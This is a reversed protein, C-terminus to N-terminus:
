KINLLGKFEGTGKLNEESEIVKVTNEHSNSVRWLTKESTIGYEEPNQIVDYTPLIEFVARGDVFYRHVWTPVYSIEELNIKNDILNKKLKINVIIGDETQRNKLLEYRQNSLFNGLSYIVVTQKDERESDLIEMSQVVHPHSGFIIDVGYNSLAQAIKKQFNNPNEKYENGWHMYLVVIEAGQNKMEKVREEIVKLDDELFEYCFTDILGEVEKPIKIANITKYEGWRPTEFTYASLGVKIGKVEVISYSKEEINRRTGFTKLGEKHLVDLTRIIGDQRTDFSHNNATALADFGAKKLANALADPTNFYPFSSYGQDAGGFTTELNGLMLDARQFYGEIYKFNNDFNYEQTEAEYQARIQPGHVMIDGVGSIQIEVFEPVPIKSKEEVAATIPAEEIFVVEGDQQHCGGLVVTLTILLIAKLKKKKYIKKGM